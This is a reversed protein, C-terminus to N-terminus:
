SSNSHGKLGDVGQVKQLNKANSIILCPFFFPLEKKREKELHIHSSQFVCCKRKKKKGLHSDELHDPKAKKIEAFCKQSQFVQLQFKDNSRM